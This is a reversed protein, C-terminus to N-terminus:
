LCDSDLFAFREEAIQKEWKLFEGWLSNLNQGVFEKICLENLSIVSIVWFGNAKCHAEAKWVFDGNRKEPVDITIQFILTEM